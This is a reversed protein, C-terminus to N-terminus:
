HLETSAANFACRRSHPGGRVQDLDELSSKIVDVAKM